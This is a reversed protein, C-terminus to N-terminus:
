TPYVDIRYKPYKKLMAIQGETLHEAYKDVNGATISLLPKEDDYPGVDYRGSGKKWGAPATDAPLGGTYAPIVKDASGAQNAGSDTLSKGLQDAEQQSVGASATGILITFGLGAILGQLVRM